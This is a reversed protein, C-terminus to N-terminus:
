RSTEPRSGHSLHAGYARRRPGPNEPSLAAMAVAPNRRHSCTMQNNPIIKPLQLATSTAFVCSLRENEPKSSPPASLPAM